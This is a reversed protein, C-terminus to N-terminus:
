VFKRSSQITPLIGLHYLGVCFPLYPQELSWLGIFAGHGRCIVNNPLPFKYYKGPVKWGSPTPHPLFLYLLVPFVMYVQDPKLRSYAWHVEFERIFHMHVNERQPAM